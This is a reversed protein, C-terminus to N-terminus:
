KPGSIMRSPNEKEVKTLKKKEFFKLKNRVKKEVKHCKTTENQCRYRGQHIRTFSLKGRGIKRFTREDLLLNDDLSDMTFTPSPSPGFWSQERRWATWSRTSRRGQRRLCM